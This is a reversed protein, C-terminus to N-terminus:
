KYEPWYLFFDIGTFASLNAVEERFDIILKLRLADSILPKSIPAGFINKAFKKIPLPVTKKVDESLMRVWRPMLIVDDTANKHGLEIKIDSDVDIFNLIKKQMAFPDQILSELSFILWQERNTYSLYREIQSYYHSCDKIAPVIEIAEEIDIRKEIWGRIVSHRYHSILREIPDRVIYIYRIDGLTQYIRKPVEASGWTYAPSTEGIAKYGEAGEFLREYWVVGKWWNHDSFFRPEKPGCMFVEPHHALLSYLTTTGAKEAGIILFNPLKTKATM